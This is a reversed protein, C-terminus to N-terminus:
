NGEVAFEYEFQVADHNEDPTTAERDTPNMLEGFHSPDAIRDEYRNGESERARLPEDCVSCKRALAAILSDRNERILRDLDSAIPRPGVQLRGEVVRARYGRQEIESLLHATTMM